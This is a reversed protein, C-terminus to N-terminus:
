NPKIEIRRTKDQAKPNKPLDITLVGNKFSASVKDADVEQPLGIVREFRGYTRETYHTGETKESKKEGSISLTNERMDLSIDKMDLGPLEATVHYAKDDENMEISPRLLSGGNGPASTRAPAFFDDFLRDMEQRFSSFPEFPWGAQGGRWPSLERNAM